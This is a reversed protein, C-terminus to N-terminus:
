VKHALNMYIDHLYQGCLTFLVYMVSSLSGLGQLFGTFRFYPILYNVRYLDNLNLLPFSKAQLYKKLWFFFPCIQGQLYGIFHFHFTFQIQGWSFGLFWLLAFTYPRLFGKFLFPFEGSGAFGQLSFFPPQNTWTFPFGQLVRYFPLQSPWFSDYINVISYSGTFIVSTYM